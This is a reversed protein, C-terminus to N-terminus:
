ANRETEAVAWAVTESQQAAGDATDQLPMQRFAAIHRM